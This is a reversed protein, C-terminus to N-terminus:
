RSKIEQYLNHLNRKIGESTVAYPNGGGNVKPREDGKSALDDGTATITDISGYMEDPENAYSEEEMDNGFIIGDEDGEPEDHPHDMSKIDLELDDADQPENGSTDGIDKLINLLDRIGGPGQGNMSLNMSVNDPQKPSSMPMDGGCEELEGDPVTPAPTNLKNMTYRKEMEPNKGALGTTLDTVVNKLEPSTYTKIGISDNGGGIEKNLMDGKARYDAYKDYAANDGANGAPGVEDLNKITKYLETFNM